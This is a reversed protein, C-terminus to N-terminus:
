LPRDIKTAFQTVSETDTVGPMAGITDLTQDLAATDRPVVTLIMDFRGSATHAREVQPLLAPAPASAGNVTKPGVQPLRSRNGPATSNGWLLM